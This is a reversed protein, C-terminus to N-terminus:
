RWRTRVMPQHAIGRVTFGLGYPSFGLRSYFPIAPVQASLVVAPANALDAAALLFRMTAEGIGRRRYRPLTAVWTVLASGNPGVGLTLRGTGVPRPPEGAIEHLLALAHVSRDDDADRVGAEAMGQEDGFVRRRLELVAAFEVETLPERVELDAGGDWWRTLPTSVSATM